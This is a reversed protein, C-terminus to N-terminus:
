FDLFRGNRQIGNRFHGWPISFNAQAGPTSSIVSSLNTWGYIHRAAAVIEPLGDGDVDGVSAPNQLFVPTELRINGDSCLTTACTLQMGDSGNFIQVGTRHPVIVEISGNGDIDATVPSQYIGGLSDHKGEDMPIVSWLTSNLAPTIATLRSSGDGGHSGKGNQTFIVELLNDDNLDSVAVSSTFCGTSTHTQLVEGTDADIIKVYKGRKEKNKLPYTCGTGTAIEGGPNEPILDAFAPSSVPVQDLELSWFYGAKDRFDFYAPSNKKRKKRRKRKKLVRKSFKTKMAWMYGGEVVPPIIGAVGASDTNIFVVPKKVGLIEGVAPSAFSTDSNHHITYVKGNPRVNYFNRDLSTFFVNLKGKGGIDVLAPTSFVGHDKAYFKQKKSLKKLNVNWRRKGTIGNYAAVGGPCANDGIGGYGVIVYPVGNGFLEGVVPSSLAKNTNTTDRCTFNPLEAKWLLTGDARYIRITGNAGAVAVENGNNANGDIEAIVPSGFKVRTGDLNIGIKEEGEHIFSWGPIIDAATESFCLSNTLLIICFILLVRTSQIITM